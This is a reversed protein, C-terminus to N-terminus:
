FIKEPEKETLRSVMNKINKKSNRIEKVKKVLEEFKDNQEILKMLPFMEKRSNGFLQILKMKQEKTLFKEFDYTDKLEKMLQLAKDDSLNELHILKSKKKNQEIENEIKDKKTRLLIFFYFSPNSINDENIIENVLNIPTELDYDVDIIFVYKYEKNKEEPKKNTKNEIEKKITDITRARIIYFKNIANREFLYACVSNAFNMKGVGIDGYIIIYNIESYKNDIIDYIDQVNYRREIQMLVIDKFMEKDKVIICNENRNLTGVRKNGYIIKKQSQANQSKLIFKFSEGFRHVDEDDEDCGCCIKYTEGKINQCILKKENEKNWKKVLSVLYCGKNHISFDDFDCTCTNIAFKDHIKERDKKYYLCCTKLHQKHM